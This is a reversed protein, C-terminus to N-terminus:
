QFTFRNSFALTHILFFLMLFSYLSLVQSVYNFLEESKISEPLHLLFPSIKEVGYLSLSYSFYLVFFIIRNISSVNSCVDEIDRSSCLAYIVRRWIFIPGMSTSGSGIATGIPIVSFNVINKLPLRFVYRRLSRYIGIWWFCKLHSMKRVYINICSRFYSFLSSYLDLPPLLPEIGGYRKSIIILVCWM